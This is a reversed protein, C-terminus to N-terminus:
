GVPETEVAFPDEGPVAPTAAPIEAGGNLMQNVPDMRAQDEIMEMVRDVETPELGYEEAIWRTPFGMGKLKMLADVKAGLARFQSDAWMVTGRRCAQAKAENDMALAMLAHIERIASTVYTIRERTKAVLGTEAATLAESSLNAVKGILYHPPTRTQAAIHEVAREIVNSYAALDAAPWNGISADGTLWLIRENILTDLEIPREGVKVGNADLVPLKPVDAGMVVRQPLSAFDLSNMLYAWTLNIADQMAMVGAIDSLPDDDLLTQNRLEVMPVRKMPNPIPWTDDNPGQRPQWGEPGASRVVDSGAPVILGSVSYGTRTYRPRDFKWVFLKQYLTAYERTDDAWLKLAAVPEGTDSDYAVIAQDPREWTVRAEDDETGWVLCYARAAALMVVFAESSGRECDALRWAESLEVDTEQEGPLRIGLVNMREAPAAAVPATWNDSFGKFRDAFYDRFEPSAYCLKHKGKYYDLRRTTEQERRRLEDALRNLVAVARRAEDSVMVDAVPLPMAM